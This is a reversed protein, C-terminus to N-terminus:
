KPVEETAAIAADIADRAARAARIVDNFAMYYSNRSKARRCDAIALEYKDIASIAAANAAARAFTENM